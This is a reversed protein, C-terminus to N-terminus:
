PREGAGPLREIWRRRAADAAAQLGAERRDLDLRLVVGIEAIRRWDIEVPRPDALGILRYGLRVLWAAWGPMSRSLAGPGTVLAVLRPAGAAPDDPLEFVLDDVKGARRDHRDILERDVVREGLTMEADRGSM